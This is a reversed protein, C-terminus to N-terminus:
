ESSIDNCNVITQNLIQEKLEEISNKEKIFSSCNSPGPILKKEIGVHWISYFLGYLVAIENLIYLWINKM